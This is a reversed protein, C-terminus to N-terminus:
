HYVPAKTGILNRQNEDEVVFSDITIGSNLVPTPYAVLEEGVREVEFVKLDLNFIDLLEEPVYPQPLSEGNTIAKHLIILLNIERIIFISNTFIVVKKGLNILRAFFRAMVRQDRPHLDNEPSKFVYTQEDYKLDMVEFNIHSAIITLQGLDLELSKKTM